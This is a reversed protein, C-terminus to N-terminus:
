TSRPTQILHSDCRRISHLLSHASCSLRSRATSRQGPMAATSVSLWMTPYLAEQMPADYTGLHSPRKPPVQYTTPQPLSEQGRAPVSEVVVVGEEAVAAEGVAAEEEEEGELSHFKEPPPLPLPAEEAEVKEMGVAAMEVARAAEEESTM